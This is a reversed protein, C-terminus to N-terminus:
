YLSGAAKLTCRDRSARTFSSSAELPFPSYRIASGNRASHIRRFSTSSTRGLHDAAKVRMQPSDTDRKRAPPEDADRRQDSQRYERECGRSSFTTRTCGRITHQLREPLLRRRDRAGEVSPKEGDRTM